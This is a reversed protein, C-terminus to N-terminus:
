QSKQQCFITSERIAEKGFRMGVSTECCLFYITIDDYNRFGKRGNNSTAIGIPFDNEIVIQHKTGAPIAYHEGSKFRTLGSKEEATLDEINIKTGTYRDEM